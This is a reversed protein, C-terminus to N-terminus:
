RVAYVLWSCLTSSTNLKGLLALYEPEDAEFACGTWEMLEDLELCNDQLVREIIAVTEDNTIPTGLVYKIGRLNNPSALSWLGWMIDSSSKLAPLQDSPPINPLGWLAKASTGPSQRNTLVILGSAANV